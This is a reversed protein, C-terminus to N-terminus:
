FGERRRRSVVKEKAVASGPGERSRQRSTRAIFISISRRSLTGAPLTPTTGSTLSSSPPASSLSSSSFFRRASTERTQQRGIKNKKKDREGRVKGEKIIADKIRSYLNRHKEFPPLSLSLPLSVLRQAKNKKGRNANTWSFFGSGFFEFFFLSLLVCMSAFPPHTHVFTKFHGKKATM